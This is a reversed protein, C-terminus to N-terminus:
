GLLQKVILQDTLGFGPLCAVDDIEIGGVPVDNAVTQRGQLGHDILDAVREDGDAEACHGDRFGLYLHETVGLAKLAGQLEDDRTMGLDPTEMGGTKGEEGKTATVCIVRQGGAVAVAMLGGALYTEDDPHAWITLITGLGEVTNM